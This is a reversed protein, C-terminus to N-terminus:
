DQLAKLLLVRRPSDEFLAKILSTMEQGTFAAFKRRPLWEAVESASMELLDALSCFKHWSPAHKEMTGRGRSDMEETSAGSMDMNYAASSSSSSSSAASPFLHQARMIVRFVRSIDSGAEETICDADLIPQMASRLIGEVLFGMVREYVTEQLVGLWQSSLRELHRIILSAGELDNSCNDLSDFQESYLPITTKAHMSSTSSPSSVATPRIQVRSLLESLANRQEDIHVVLRQEGMSRLRPIFDIFGCTELLLDNAKGLEERYMHTILTCNHTLYSCDNFFVAGMRPVTEIVDVFRMPVIAMFLEICDRATQYLINAVKPSASFAQAMVEHVLKLLRCSALSVHCQEFCLTQLAFSGSKELVARNDGIDGASAPDDELADGSAIMTNHYDSLVLERARGLIDKRRADAFRGCLDSVVNVLPHCNDSSADDTHSDGGKRGKERETENDKSPNSQIADPSRTSTINLGCSKVRAEFDRCPKEISKQFGALESEVKPILSVLTEVLADMISLPANMGLSISALSLIENKGCAVHNTFFELSQSIQDLFQPFPMRCAGLATKDFANEESAGTVLAFSAIAKAANVGQGLTSSGATHSGTHASFNGGAGRSSLQQKSNTTGGTAGNSTSNTNQAAFANRSVSEFVIESREDDLFLTPAQAKREKWLPCLIFNWLNYAMSEVCENASDMRILTLWIRSLEIPQELLIDEGRIMGKLRKVVSIRGVEFQICSSLLRKLRSVFRSRLISAERRLATVVKGTGWISNPGPLEDIAKVMVVMKDCVADLDTLIASEECCMVSESAHSVKSLVELLEVSEKLEAGKEEQYKEEASILSLIEAVDCQLIKLANRPDNRLNVKKLNCSGETKGDYLATVHSLIEEESLRLDMQLSKIRDDLDDM